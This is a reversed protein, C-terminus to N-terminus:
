TAEGPPKRADEALDRVHRALDVLLVTLATKAWRDLQAALEEYAEARVRRADALVLADVDALVAEAAHEPCTRAASRCSGCDPHHATRITEALWDRTPTTSM